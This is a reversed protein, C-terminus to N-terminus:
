IGKHRFDLIYNLRMEDEEDGLNFDPPNKTGTM